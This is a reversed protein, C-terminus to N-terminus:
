RAKTRRGSKRKMPPADTPGYKPAGMIRYLIAYILSVLGFLLFFLLVALALKAALNTQGYIFNLLPRLAVSKWLFAPPRMRGLLSPPIAWRHKVGYNILLDSAAYSIVVLLLLLLCGFGRWIPHTPREKYLYTPRKGYMM